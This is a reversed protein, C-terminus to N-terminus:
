CGSSPVRRDLNLLREGNKKIVLYGGVVRRENVGLYCTETGGGELKQKM